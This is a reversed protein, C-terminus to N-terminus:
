HIHMNFSLKWIIWAYQGHICIMKLKTLFRHFTQIAGYKFDTVVIKNSKLNYLTTKNVADRIEVDNGSMLVYDEVRKCQKYGLQIANSYDSKIREYAKIPDHFPARFGCIKM